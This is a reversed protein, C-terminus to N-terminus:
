RPPLFNRPRSGGDARLSAQEDPPLLVEKRARQRLQGLPLRCADCRGLVATGDDSVSLIWEGSADFLAQNVAGAHRYLAARELGLRADWVRVSNDASATVVWAGDPSFAASSLAASHGGKLLVSQPGDAGIDGALHWVRASRDTSASVLAQSDPSFALARVDGQHRALRRPAAGPAQRDWLEVVAGAAAAVWRGDPSPLALSRGAQAEAQWLPAPAVAEDLASQPWLALSGDPRLALWEPKGPNFVASDLPALWGPRAASRDALRWLVPQHRADPGHRGSQGLLLRGDASVSAALLTEGPVMEALARGAGPPASAASSAPTAPQLRCSVRQADKEGCLVWQRGHSDLAATTQWPKGAALLQPPRVQWLRVSHDRSTTVVRGAPGFLAHTVENRHGRLVALPVTTRSSWVRATGDQSASVLYEGNDSVSADSVWDDHLRADSTKEDSWFLVQKDSVTMLRGLDETNAQDEVFRAVSVSRAHRLLRAADPADVLQREKLDLTWVQSSRDDSATALLSPDIRSFSIDRVAGDHKFRQSYPRQAHIWPQSAGGRQWVQLRGDADGSALWQGDASFGFATYAAADARAPALATAQAQGDASLSWLALAGNACGVALQAPQGGSAPHFQALATPGPCSLDAQVAGDAAQLHVGAATHLLFLGAALEWAKIVPGRAALRAQVALSGADLRWVTSGGAVLLGQQDPTYRAESIPADFSAIKLTQAVELTALAQRLAYEARDNGDHQDLAALALHASRAPDQALALIAGAALEGARAQRQLSWGNYAAALSVAVVALGLGLLGWRNRTARRQELRQATSSQDLFTLVAQLQAGGQGPGGGLALAVWAPTPRNRRQWDRAHELNRGRWLEGDAEAHAQADHALRQLDALAQSEDLVWQRLLPWQRILSEHSIDIVPNSDLAVPAGPLLFATDARRYREVVLRLADAQAPDNGACVACLQQWPLPRRLANGEPTRETLARFAREVMGGPEGLVGLSRRAEDAHRALADAAGGVALYDDLDIPRHRGDPVLPQRAWNQWSRSLAHQMVPLDDFDDSVDNLLRQVLRPAIHQGRLQVPGTIAQKRQKRSLRPVLFSGASVVEALGPFDACGGLTDSRMTLVVRIQALPDAAALLLLKVFASAEDPDHLGASAAGAGAGIALRHLRFLEEFQDVVLLVRTDAPLRAQQVVALLGLGGLRLQGQLSAARPDILAVGSAKLLPGGPGGLDDPAVAEDPPRPLAAALAEALHRIPRQGPRMLVPLWAQDGEDAHRGQLAHLLGAKVLSSKGCGSAGSVALLSSGALRAMLADVQQQRGFFRDSEGPEFSRLGPFPNDASPDASAHASANASAHASPADAPGPALSM